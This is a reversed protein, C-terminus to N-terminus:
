AAAAVYPRQVNRVPLREAISDRQCPAIEVPQFESVNPSCPSRCLNRRFVANPVVERSRRGAAAIPEIRVRLRSTAPEFCGSFGFALRIASRSTLLRFLQLPFHLAVLLVIGCFWLIGAARSTFNETASQQDCAGGGDSAHGASSRLFSLSGAAGRQDQALRVVRRARGRQGYRGADRTEDDRARRDIRVLRVAGDLSYRGQAADAAIPDSDM